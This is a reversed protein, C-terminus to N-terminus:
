GENMALDGIGARLLLEKRREEYLVKAEREANSVLTPLAEAEAVVPNLGHLVTYYTDGPKMNRIGDIYQAILAQESLADLRSM